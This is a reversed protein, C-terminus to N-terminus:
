LDRQRKRANELVCICNYMSCMNCMSVVTLCLFHQSNFLEPKSESEITFTFSCALNFMKIYYLEMTISYISYIYIYFLKKIKM